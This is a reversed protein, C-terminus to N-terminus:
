FGAAAAPDDRVAAGIAFLSALALHRLLPLEPRDVRIKGFKATVFDKKAFPPPPM